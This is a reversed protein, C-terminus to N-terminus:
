APKVKVDTRERGDRLERTKVSVVVFQGLATAEVDDTTGLWGEIRVEHSMNTRGPQTRLEVSQEGNHIHIRRIPYVTQGVQLNEAQPTNYVTFTTM